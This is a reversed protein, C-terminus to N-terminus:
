SVRGRKREPYMSGWCDLSRVILLLLLQGAWPSAATRLTRTRPRSRSFRPKTRSLLRRERRRRLSPFSSRELLSSKNLHSLLQPSFFSADDFLSFTLLSGTAHPPFSPFRRFESEDGEGEEERHEDEHGFAVGGDGDEGVTREVSEHGHGWEGTVRGLVEGGNVSAPFSSTSFGRDGQAFPAFPRREHGEDSPPLIPISGPRATSAESFQTPTSNTSANLSLHSQRPPTGYISSPSTPESDTNQQNHHHEETSSTSSPPPFSALSSPPALALADPGGAFLPPSSPLPPPTSRQEDISSRGPHGPPFPSISRVTRGSNTRRLHAAFEFSDTNDGPGLLGHDNTSPVSHTSTSTSSARSLRPEHSFSERLPPSPLFHAHRTPSTPVPLLEETEDTESLHSPPPPQFHSEDVEPSQEEIDEVTTSEFPPELPTRPHGFTNASSPISPNITADHPYTAEHGEEVDVDEEDAFQEEVVHGGEENSQESSFSEHQVEEQQVEPEDVVAARDLSSSPSSSRSAVETPASLSAPLGRPSTQSSGGGTATRSPSTSPPNPSPSAVRNGLRM